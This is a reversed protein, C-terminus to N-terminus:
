FGFGFEDSRDDQSDVDENGGPVEDYSVVLANVWNDLLVLRDNYMQLLRNKAGEFTM